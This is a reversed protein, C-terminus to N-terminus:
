GVFAKDCFLVDGYITNQTWKRVIRTAEKNFNASGKLMGEDDVVMVFHKGCRVIDIYSVGLMAYMEKLAFGGKETTKNFPVPPDINKWTGDVRLLRALGRPPKGDKWDNDVPISAAATASQDKSPVKADAPSFAKVPLKSDAMIHIQPLAGLSHM